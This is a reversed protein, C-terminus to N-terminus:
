ASSRSWVVACIVTLFLAKVVREARGPMPMGGVLVQSGTSTRSM